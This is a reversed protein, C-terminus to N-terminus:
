PPGTTQLLSFAIQTPGDELKKAQEEGAFQTLIRKIQEISESDDAASSLAEFRPHQPVNAAQLHSRRPRAGLIRREQHHPPDEDALRHRRARITRRRRDLKRLRGLTPTWETATM